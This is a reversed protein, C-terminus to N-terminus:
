CCKAKGSERLVCGGGILGMKVLDEVAKLAAAGDAADGDRGVALPQGPRFGSLNVDCRVVADLPTLEYGGSGPVVIAAAFVLEDPRRIGLRQDEEGITGM